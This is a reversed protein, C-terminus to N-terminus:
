LGDICIWGAFQVRHFCKRFQKLIFTKAITTLLKTSIEALVKSPAFDGGGFLRGGNGVLNGSDWLGADTLRSASRAPSARALYQRKVGGGPDTGRKAHNARVRGACAVDHPQNRAM